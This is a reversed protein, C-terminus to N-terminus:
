HDRPIPRGLRPVFRGVGECYEVYKLGHVGRLHGEERRAEWQLLLVHMLGAAIMLPSPIAVVTAVMMAQSLAYIPHRVYTYPGGLVLANQETPDIGMRWNKGMTKWCIRSAWLCAGAALAAPWAIWGSAFLPQVVLPAPRTAATFFPHVVWVVVVPVWVIRLLRGVTERPVFNAARGTKKRAKRAMRLVRLWYAGVVMGIVLVALRYAM